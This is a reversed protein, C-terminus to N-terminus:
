HLHIRARVKPQLVTGTEHAVEAGHVTAFGDLCGQADVFVSGVVGSTQALAAVLPDVVLEFSFVM